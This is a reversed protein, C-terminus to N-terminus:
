EAIRLDRSRALCKRLRAAGGSRCTPCRRSSAEDITVLKAFNDHVEEYGNLKMLRLATGACMRLHWHLVRPRDAAM